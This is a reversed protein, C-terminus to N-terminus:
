RFASWIAVANMIIILIWSLRYTLNSNNLRVVVFLLLLYVALLAAIILLKFESSNMIINM